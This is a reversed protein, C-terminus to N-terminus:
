LLNLKNSFFIFFFILDINRFIFFFINIVGNKDKKWLPLSKKPSLSLIVIRILVLVPIVIVTSELNLFLVQFTLFM